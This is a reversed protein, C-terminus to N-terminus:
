RIGARGRMEDRLARVLDSWPFTVELRDMRALAEAVRGDNFDIRALQVQFEPNWPQRDVLRQAWPRADATRGRGNAVDMMLAIAPLSDPELELAARANREAADFARRDRDVIGANVLLVHRQYAPQPAISGALATCGAVLLVVVAPRGRGSRLGDLSAAVACGALVAMAPIAPSRYHSLPFTLTCAAVHAAVLAGPGLLLDRRPARAVVVLGAVAFAALLWTPVFALRLMPTM